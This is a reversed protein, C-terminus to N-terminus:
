RREAKSPGAGESELTCDRVTRSDLENTRKRPLPPIQHRAADVRETPPRRLAGAYLGGANRQLPARRFSMGSSGTALFPQGCLVAEGLWRESSEFGDGRNRGAESDFAARM